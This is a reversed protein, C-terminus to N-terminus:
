GEMAYRILNIDGTETELYESLEDVDMSEFWHKLKYKFLEKKYNKESPERKIKSISPRM